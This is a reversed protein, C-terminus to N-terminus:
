KKHDAYFFRTVAVKAEPFFQVFRRGYFLSSDALIM